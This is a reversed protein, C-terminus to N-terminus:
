QRYGPRTRRFEALPFGKLAEIVVDEQVSMADHDVREAALLGPELDTTERDRM